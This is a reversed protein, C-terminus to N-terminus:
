YSVWRPQRAYEAPTKGTIKKFLKRFYNVDCIGCETAIQQVQLDTSDLLLIAYRIRQRSVYDTLTMGMEKRFLTSLYSANVTYKAALWKLSLDESLNRNIHSVVRQVVPSHGLLSYNRVLLCYSKVMETMLKMWERGSSVTETSVAFRRSLDDVYVPHVGGSEAAKRCLTNCSILVNRMDRIPDKYRPALQYKGILNLQRLAEETNGKQVAELLKAEVGYRQEIFKHSLANEQADQLDRRDPMMQRVYETRVTRGSYLFGAAMMCLERLVSINVDSPVANSYERIDAAYEEPVGAQTMLTRAKSEDLRGDRYPGLILYEGYGREKEPIRIQCYEMEFYDTVFYVVGEQCLCCIEKRWRDVEERGFVMRRIGMDFDAPESITEGVVTLGINACRVMKQLMEMFDIQM